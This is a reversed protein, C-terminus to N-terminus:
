VQQILVSVYSTKLSAQASSRLGSHSSPWTQFPIDMALANCAGLCARVLEMLERRSINWEQERGRLAGREVVAVRRPVRVMKAQERQAM